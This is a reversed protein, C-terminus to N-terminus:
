KKLLARVHKLQHMALGTSVEIDKDDEHIEHDRRSQTCRICDKVCQGM